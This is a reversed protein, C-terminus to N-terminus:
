PPTPEREVVTHHPALSSSRVGDLEDLGECLELEDDDEVVLAVAVEIAVSVEEAEDDAEDDVVDDEEAVEDAVADRDAVAVADAKAGDLTDALGDTDDWLEPLVNEDADAEDLADVIPENDEITVAETDSLAEALADIEEVDLVDSESDAAEEALGDIEEVELVVVETDAAAEALRDIEEVDLADAETEAATEALTDIEEVGLVDVDADDAATSADALALSVIRGKDVDVDGVALGDTLGVVDAGDHARSLVDDEPVGLASSVSLGVLM